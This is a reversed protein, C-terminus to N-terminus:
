RIIRALVNAQSRNGGADVFDVRVPWDTAAAIAEYLETDSAPVATGFTEEQGLGALDDQVTLPSGTCTRDRYVGVTQLVDEVDSFGQPDTATAVVVVGEGPQIELGVDTVVPAGADGSFPLSETECEEPETTSDGCALAVVLILGLPLPIGRM